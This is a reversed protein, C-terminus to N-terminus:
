KFAAHIVRDGTEIGLIRAAGGNIELVAFAPGNSSVPTEDLPVANEHIHTVVGHADIFLMDLPIYTNRMWFSRPASDPFLFLMGRDAPMERREMLGIARARPTEALEVTLPIDRGAATRIVVEEGKASCATGAFILWVLAALRVASGGTGKRLFANRAPRRMAGPFRIM